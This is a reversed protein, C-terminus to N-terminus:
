IILLFYFSVSAFKPLIFGISTHRVGLGDRSRIVFEVLEGLTRIVVQIKKKRYFQKCPSFTSTPSVCMDIKNSLGKKNCISLNHNQNVWWDQLDKKEELGSDANGFGILQPIYILTKILRHPQPGPGWYRNSWSNWLGKRHPWGAKWLLGLGLGCWVNGMLAEFGEWSTLTPIWLTIVLLWPM